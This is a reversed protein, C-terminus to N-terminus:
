HYVTISPCPNKGVYCVVIATKKKKMHEIIKSTEKGMGRWAYLTHPIMTHIIASTMIPILMKKTVSMTTLKVARSGQM